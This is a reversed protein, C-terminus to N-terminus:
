RTLAMATERGLLGPEGTKEQERRRNSSWRAEPVERVDKLRPYSNEAGNLVVQELAKVSYTETSGHRPM